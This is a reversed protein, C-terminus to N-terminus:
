DPKADTDQRRHYGDPCWCCGHSRCCESRAVHISLAIRCGSDADGPLMLIEAGFAGGEDFPVTM